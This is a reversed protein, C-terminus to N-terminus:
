TPALMFNMCSLSFMDLGKSEAAVCHTVSKNLNMSFAGGNEAVMKHLSELTQTSPLNIFDISSLSIRSRGSVIAINFMM